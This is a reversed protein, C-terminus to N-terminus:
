NSILNGTIIGTQGKVCALWEEKTSSDAWTLAGNSNPIVDGAAGFHSIYSFNSAAALQVFKTGNTTNVKAQTVTIAINSLRANAFYFSNGCRVGGGIIEFSLNSGSIFSNNTNAVPSGAADTTDHTIGLSYVVHTPTNGSSVLCRPNEQGASDVVDSIWKVTAGTLEACRAWNITSPPNNVVVSDYNNGYPRMTVSQGTWKGWSSRMEHEVGEALWATWSTGTNNRRFGEDMTKLPSAKTGANSNKGATPHFFLNATDAPAEIGYYIGNNRCQILNGADPSVMKCALGALQTNSMASLMAVIQAGTLQEPEPIADIAAAVKSDVYAKTPLNCHTILKACDIILNGEVDTTIPSNTADDLKVVGYETKSAKPLTVSSSGVTLVRTTSNYSVSGVPPKIWSTGNWVWIQGSPQEIYIDPDNNTPATTPIGVGTSTSKCCTM